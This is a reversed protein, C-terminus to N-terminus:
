GRQGAPNTGCHVVRITEVKAHVDAIHVTAGTWWFGERCIGYNSFFAAKWTKYIGSTAMMIIGLCFCIFGPLLVESFWRPTHLLATSYLRVVSWLNQNRLMPTRYIATTNLMLHYQHLCDIGVCWCAIIFNSSMEHNWKLWIYYSLMVVALFTWENVPGTIVFCAKNAKTCLRGVCRLQTVIRDM